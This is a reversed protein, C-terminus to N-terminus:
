WTMGVSKLTVETIREQKGKERAEKCKADECRRCPRYYFEIHGESVFDRVTDLVLPQNCHSCYADINM